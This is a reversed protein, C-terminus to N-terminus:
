ARVRVEGAESSLQEPRLTWLTQSPVRQFYLRGCPVNVSVHSKLGSM